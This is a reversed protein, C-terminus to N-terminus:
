RRVRRFLIGGVLLFIINAFWAALPPPLFKSEGMAQGIIITGWYLFSILISLAFGISKGGRGVELAFPVGLLLIILNSFPFALKLHLLVKEKNVPIGQRQLRETYKKLQFFNMHRPKKRTPILDGPSEPLSVLKESFNEQHTIQNKTFEFITGEYFLWKGNKQWVAKQADIRRILVSHSDFQYVSVNHLAQKQSDVLGITYKFGNKGSVIVDYFKTSSKMTRGKVKVTYTYEAKQNAFPVLTEGIVLSFLSIGLTLLILPYVMQFIHLGSAKLAIIENNRSLNGLSFLTALLVSVPLVQVLWEPLRWGLYELFSFLVGSHHALTERRDFLESVIIIILFLFIGYFFPSLFRRVLYVPIIRMKIM